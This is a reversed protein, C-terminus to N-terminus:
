SAPACKKNKSSLCNMVPPIATSFATPWGENFDRILMSHTNQKTKKVKGEEMHQLRREVSEIDKGAKGFISYRDKSTPHLVLWKPCGSVSIYLDWGWKKYIEAVLQCFDRSVCGAYTSTHIGFYYNERGERRTPFTTQSFANGDDTKSNVEMEQPETIM